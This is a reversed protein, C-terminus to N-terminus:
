LRNGPNVTVSYFRTWLCPAFPFKTHATNSSSNARSAQASTLTQIYLPIAWVCLFIYVYEGPSLMLSRHILVYAAAQGKVSVRSSRKPTGPLRRARQEEQMEKRGARGPEAVTRKKETRNRPAQITEQWGQSGPGEGEARLPNRQVSFEAAEWAPHPESSYIVM